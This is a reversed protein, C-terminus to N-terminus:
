RKSKTFNSPRWPTSGDSLGVEHALMCDDVSKAQFSAYQGSHDDQLTMRFGTSELSLSIKGPLRKAGSATLPATLFAWLEPFQKFMEGREVSSTSFTSGSTAARKEPVAMCSVVEDAWHVERCWCCLVRRRLDPPPIGLAKFGSEPFFARGAAARNEWEADTLCAPRRKVVRRYYSM